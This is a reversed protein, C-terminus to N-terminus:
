NRLNIQLLTGEIAPLASCSCSSGTVDKSSIWGAAWQLSLKKCPTQLCWLAINWAKRSHCILTRLAKHVHGRGGQDDHRVLHQYRLHSAQLDSGEWAFVEDRRAQTSKMATGVSHATQQHAILSKVM